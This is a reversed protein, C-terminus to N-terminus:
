SANAGRKANVTLNGLLAEPCHTAAHQRADAVDALSAFLPHESNDQLRMRNKSILVHTM